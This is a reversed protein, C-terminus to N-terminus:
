LGRIRGRWRDLIAAMAGGDQEANASRYVDVEAGRAAAEAAAEAILGNLLWIGIVSSTPGMRDAIGPVELAGDGYSGGNDLVIDAVEFLRKGSPHRSSVRRAHEMSTLAIVTAGRERALLALEVPYANRGSNSAVIVVDGAAIDYRALVRAAHGAERELLTSREAGRHLMLDEDLIAQAAAIGGARYFVEEALMHSHGSGAVHIVRDTVLAEAIADRAADMAAGETALLRDMIGVLIDRYAHRIAHTMPDDKWNASM